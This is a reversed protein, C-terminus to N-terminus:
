FPIRLKPFFHTLWNLARVKSFPDDVQNLQQSNKNNNRITLHNSCLELENTSQLIVALLGFMYLIQRYCLLELGQKCQHVTVYSEKKGCPFVKSCIESLEIM